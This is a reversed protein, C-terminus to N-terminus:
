IELVKEAKELAESPFSEWSDCQSATSILDNLAEELKIVREQYFKRADRQLDLENAYKSIIFPPNSM